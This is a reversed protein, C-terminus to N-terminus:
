PEFDSLKESEFNM